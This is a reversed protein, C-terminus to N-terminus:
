LQHALMARLRAMIMDLAVRNHGGEPIIIDAFYKSPEVFALHMPRVTSLYQRVVSDLSRGRERIDRDLRRLIRVDADTDVFVKIDMVERLERDHFILIGELILLPRPDVRTTERLRSHTRFDYLPKEIPLGSRLLAVHERLLKWDFADPHDFNLRGREATPLSGLDLYYSDQQVIVAQHAGFSRAIEDSVTTKGSGTGGAIGLLVSSGKAM